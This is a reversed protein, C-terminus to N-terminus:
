SSPVGRASRPACWPSTAGPCRGSAGCTGRAPPTPWGRRSTAPPRRVTWTRGSPGGGRCCGPPSPPRSGGHRPGRSRAPRPAHELHHGAGSPRVTAPRPPARPPREVAIHRAPPSANARARLGVTVEWPGPRVAARRGSWRRPPPGSRGTPACAASSRASRAARGRRAPTPAAVGSRPRPDRRAPSRGAGAPWRCTSGRCAASRGAGAPPARCRRRAGRAARPGGRRPPRASRPAGARGACGSRSSRGSRRAPPLVHVRVSRAGIVPVVASALAQPLDVAAGALLDDVGEAVQAAVDDLEGEPVDVAPRPQRQAVALQGGDRHEGREAGALRLEVDVELGRHVDADAHLLQALDDDVDRGVRAERGGDVGHAAQLRELRM